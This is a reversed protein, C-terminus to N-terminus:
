DVPPEHENKWPFHGIKPNGSNTLEIDFKSGAVVLQTGKLKWDMNTSYLVFLRDGKIYCYVEGVDEIRGAILNVSASNAPIGDGNALALMSSYESNDDGAPDNVTSCGIVIFAAATMVFVLGALRKM